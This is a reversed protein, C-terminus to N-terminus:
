VGLAPGEKQLWGLDLAVFAPPAAAREKLVSRHDLVRCSTFM